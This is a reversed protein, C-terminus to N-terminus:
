HGALHEAAKLIEEPSATIRQGGAGRPSLSAVVAPMMDWDVTQEIDLKNRLAKLIGKNHHLLRWTEPDAPDGIIAFAEKPLSARTTPLGKKVPM